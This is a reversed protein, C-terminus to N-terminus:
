AIIIPAGVELPEYEYEVSDIEIPGSGALTLHVNRAIRQLDIRAEFQDNGLATFGVSQSPDDLGDYTPTITMLQATNQGFGRVITRRM